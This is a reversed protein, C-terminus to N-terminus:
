LHDSPRAYVNVVDVARFSSFCRARQLRLADDYAGTLRCLLLSLDM